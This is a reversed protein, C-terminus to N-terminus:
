RNVLPNDKEYPRGWNDSLNVHTLSRLIELGRVGLCDNSLPLLKSQALIRLLFQLVESGNVIKVELQKLAVQPM